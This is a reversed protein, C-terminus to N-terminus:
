DVTCTCVVSDNWEVTSQALATYVALETLKTCRLHMRSHVTLARILASVPYVVLASVPASRKYSVRYTRM